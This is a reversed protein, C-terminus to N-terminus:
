FTCTIEKYRSRDPDDRDGREYLAKALNAIGFDNIYGDMAWSMDEPTSTDTYGKFLSTILGKGGTGPNPIVAAANKVVSKYFSKVDFNTVGKIYADAFTIDSSTGVMLDAYGPSSWRTIWGGDRYHQVFGDIMEGAKTPTLLFM